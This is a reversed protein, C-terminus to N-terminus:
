DDRDHDFMINPDTFVFPVTEKAAESRRRKFDREIVNDERQIDIQRELGESAADARKEERRAKGKYFKLLGALAAILAALSGYLWLKIQSFM